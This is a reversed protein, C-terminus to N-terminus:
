LNAAQVRLIAWRYTPDRPDQILRVLRSLIQAYEQSRGAAGAILANDRLRKVEATLTQRAQRLTNDVEQRLDPTADLIALENKLYGLDTIVHHLYDDNSQYERLYFQSHNLILRAQIEAQDRNTSLQIPPEVKSLHPPDMVIREAVTPQRQWLLVGAIILALLLLELRPLPRKVEKTPKSDTEAVLRYELDGSRIAEGGELFSAMTPVHNVEVERANLSRLLWLDGVREITFHDEVTIKGPEFRIKDSDSKGLPELEPMLETSTVQNSPPTKDGSPLNSKKM